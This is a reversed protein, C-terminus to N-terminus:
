RRQRPREDSRDWPAGRHAFRLPRPGDGLRHRSIRRQADKAFPVQDLRAEGAAGLCEVEDHLAMAPADILETVTKDAVVFVRAIQGLLHEKARIAAESAKAAL